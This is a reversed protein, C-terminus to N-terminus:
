LLRGQRAARQREARAFASRSAKERMEATWVRSKNRLVNDLRPPRNSKRLRQKRPKVGTQHGVLHPFARVYERRLAKRPLAREEAISKLSRGSEVLGRIESLMDDSLRFRRAMGIARIREINWASNGAAKRAASLRLRQELSRKTGRIKAARKERTEASQKIGACTGATRCINYLLRNAFGWDLWEQEDALLDDRAGGVDLFEVEFGREGYKQWARQLAASHHDGRHLASMHAYIRRECDISSGVYFHGTRKSIIRYIGVCKSKM